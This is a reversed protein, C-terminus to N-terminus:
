HALYIFYDEIPSTSTSTSTGTSVGTVVVDKSNAM